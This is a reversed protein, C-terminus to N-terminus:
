PMTETRTNTKKETIIRQLAPNMSLYQTFKAKDLFVKNEGDIAISIQNPMTAQAPM